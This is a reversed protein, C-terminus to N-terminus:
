ESQGNGREIQLRGERDLSDLFDRYEQQAVPDNLWSYVDSERHEEHQSQQQQQSDDAATSATWDVTRQENGTSM